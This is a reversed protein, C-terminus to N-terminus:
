LRMGQGEIHTDVVFLEVPDTVEVGYVRDRSSGLNWWQVRKGYEGIKGLSRTPRTRWTEGGDDSVKLTALPDAGQGTAVGHGANVVLEFRQHSARQHEAYISQYTWWTRQPDGWEEHTDPDLIGVKGSESDGVVQLGYASVIANPRWRSYGLSEREHWQATSADFVVTRGASPFTFAIQEHGEMDYALSFCDDVKSLRQVVGEIGYNSVRRPTLGDLKRYTLDNALWFISNDQKGLSAGAAAGIELLGQPSRSFPSGTALAANYWIECTAEGALFLERHDVLLGVLLDPAGEATAIDLADFTLANLGTNFFQATGPRRFVLYGDLFDVDGAGWGTFTSDTIQAITSGDSQYATNDFRRVAVLNAGNNSISVREAGPISGTVQSTNGLRDISWLESGSLAYLTGGLVTMGRIPGDGVEVWSRIGPARRLIIPGKAGDKPAQESFVNLLRASSAKPSPLRYTSVPLPLRM